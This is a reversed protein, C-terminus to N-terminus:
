FTGPSRKLFRIQWIEFGQMPWHGAAIRGFKAESTWKEGRGEKAHVTANGSRDVVSPV